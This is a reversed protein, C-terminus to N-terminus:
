SQQTLAEIKKIQNKYSNAHAFDIRKKQLPVSNYYELNKIVAIFRNPLDERRSVMEFLPPAIEHYTSIQSSVVVKGTSLYELIKHNNSAVPGVKEPYYCIIFLDYAQIQKAIEIPPMQGHLKVNELSELEKIFSEQSTFNGLNSSTSPGIFHFEIKKNVNILDLLLEHDIGFSLLNGVYGCRITSSNTQTAKEGDLYYNSVGHNIFHATSNLKKYRELIPLAVALVIDASQAAFQDLQSHLFDMSHFISLNAKFLKLNQFRFPDFSWVIDIALPLSKLLGNIEIRSLFNFLPSLRILRNLGIFRQSYDVVTINEYESQTCVVERIASPPNLFYVKNNQALAIAYHHKSLQNIGWREPSIILIKKGVFDM